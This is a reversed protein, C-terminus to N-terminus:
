NRPAQLVVSRGQVDRMLYSACLWRLREWKKERLWWGERWAQGRRRVQHVRPQGRRRSSLWNPSCPAPSLSWPPQRAKGPCARPPRPAVPTLPCCELTTLLPRPVETNGSLLCHTQLPPARRFSGRLRKVLANLRRGVSQTGKRESEGHCWSPPPCEAVPAAMDRVWRHPPALPCQARWRNLSVNADNLFNNINISSFPSLLLPLSVIIPQRECAGM